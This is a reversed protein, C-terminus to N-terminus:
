TTPIYAEPWGMKGRPRLADSSLGEEVAAAVVGRDSETASDAPPHPCGEPVSLARPREPARRIPSM